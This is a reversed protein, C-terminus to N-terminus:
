RATAPALTLPESRNTYIARMANGRIEIASPVGGPYFTGGLMGTDIQVIRGEVRTRVRFGPVVTHGIVIARAGLGSLMETLTPALTEEPEEALGRYWLPGSPMSSVLDAAQDITVGETTLEKRVAANIGACGLAASTLNLGGHVFLIDNIKIIATRERLWRGLEGDANYAQHMEVYGLPFDKLFRERFAPEDLTRQERSAREVEQDRVIAYLADRVDGSTPTRFAAFEEASVYRWDGLMRMAEHNGLVVYVRGGARSADRELRRILELARRSDPGRDLIDGTQVLVTRGGTWRDRSDIVGAARLIAVFGDYAGHVDGVAVVRESTRVQCPDNFNSQATTRQSSAIALTAAVVATAIARAIRHARPM